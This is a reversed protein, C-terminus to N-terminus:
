GKRTEGTRESREGRIYKGGEEGDAKPEIGELAAGAAKKQVAGAFRRM